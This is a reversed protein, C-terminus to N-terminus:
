KKLSAAMTLCLLHRTYAECEFQNISQGPQLNVQAWHFREHDCICRDVCENGQPKYWPEPFPGAKKGGDPFDLPPKDVNACYRARKERVNQIARKVGEPECCTPPPGAELLRCPVGGPPIADVPSHTQLGRMDLNQIPNSRGYRYLEDSAQLRIPDPSIYRGRLTEYWRNLNYFLSERIGAWM